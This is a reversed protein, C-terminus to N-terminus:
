ETWMEIYQLSVTAAASGPNYCTVSGKLVCHPVRTTHTARLTGDVYFDVSAAKVVIELTYYTDQTTIWSTADTDQYGVDSSSKFVVTDHNIFLCANQAANNSTFATSDDAWETQVLGLGSQATFDDMKFKTKFHIETADGKISYMWKAATSIVSYGYQAIDSYIKL